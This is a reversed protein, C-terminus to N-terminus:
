DTGDKVMEPTICVHDVYTKLPMNQKNLIGVALDVLLEGYKEFRYDTSAVIRPNPLKFHERVLHDAGHGGIIVHNERGLGKIADYAGLAVDDNVGIIAVKEMDSWRSLVERTRQFAGDRTSNADVTLIKDDPVDIFEKLGSVSYAVRDRIVSVVRSDTLVLLRDLQGDWNEQVWKGLAQGTLTGAFKNNAGFYRALPIPIDVAIIPRPILLSWLNSGIRENIHFIIALDVDADVFVKANALAKDDDLDNDLVLLDIEAPHAEAADIITQTRYAVSPMSESLSSYGIKFPKAM